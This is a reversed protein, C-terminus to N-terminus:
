CIVISPSPLFPSWPTYSPQYPQAPATPFTFQYQIEPPRNKLLQIQRELEQITQEKLELLKKMEQMQKKM